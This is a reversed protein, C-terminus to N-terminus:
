KRDEFLWRERYPQKAEFARLEGNLRRVMSTQADDGVITIVEAILRRSEEFQGTEALAVALSEMRIATKQLAMLDRSLQLALKGDRGEAANSCALVRAYNLKLTPDNPSARLGTALEQRAERYRGLAALVRARSSHWDTEAPERTAVQQLTALAEEFHATRFQVEALSRLAELSEPKERHWTAATSLAEDFTQPSMALVLTHLERTEENEPALQHAKALESRAEDLMDLAILIRAYRARHLANNPEAAVAAGYHLAAPRWRGQSLLDLGLRAQRSGSHNLDNLSVRIPDPWSLPQATGEAKLGQAIQAAQATDGLRRYQDALPILIERRGPMRQMAQRFYDIAAKPDNERAALQGLSFLAFPQAPDLDLALQLTRRADAPRNLRLAVSGLFCLAAIRDATRVREDHQMATLADAMAPASRATEGLDDLAEAYLYHWRFDAPNLTSAVRFAEMAAARFVYVMYIEGLRGWAAAKETRSATISRTISRSARQEEEIHQRSSGELASLDPPAVAPQAWWWSLAALLIGGAVLSALLGKILRPPM